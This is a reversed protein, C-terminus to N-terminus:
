TLSELTTLVELLSARVSEDCSEVQACMRLITCTEKTQDRSSAKQAELRSVKELLQRCKEEAVPYYRQIFMQLAEKEAVQAVLASKRRKDGEDSSQGVSQHEQKVQQKKLAENQTTLELIRSELKLKQSEQDRLQTQVQALENIADKERQQSGFLSSNEQQLLTIQKKLEEKETHSDLLKSQADKLELELEELRMAKESVSDMTSSFKAYLIRLEEKRQKSKEMEKEAAKLAATMKADRVKFARVKEQLTKIEEEQEFDTKQKEELKDNLQKLTVNEQTLIEMKKKMQELEEAMRKKEAEAEEKVVTEEQAARLSSLEMEKEKEVTRKQALQTELEVVRDAMLQKEMAEFAETDQRENNREELCKATDEQIWTAWQLLRQEREAENKLTKVEVSTVLDRVVSQVQQAAIKETKIELQGTLATFRTKWLECSRLFSNMEKATQKSYLLTANIEKSEKATAEQLKQEFECRQTDMEKQKQRYLRAMDDEMDRLSRQTHALKETLAAKSKELADRDEMLQRNEDRLVQTVIRLTDDRVSGIPPSSSLRPKKQDSSAANPSRPRKPSRSSSPPQREMKRASRFNS